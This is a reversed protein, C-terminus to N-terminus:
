SQDQNVNRLASVLKVCEVAEKVDHVRLISAGNLLAVTNLVTTGNLANEPTTHLVKNIMAKRSVGALIPLNFLEFNKLRNLLEYNHAVTKGFGFGADLIIDHVAFAKLQSLKENFYNMVEMVVDDYLPNIQMTQSTGQIHMLVYPVQYAAIVKYMEDNGGSVDNIINAGADIAQKAVESNCTDASIVVDKFQNRVLKIAPLLRSLEEDTTPQISGPRSSAGGIDIIGVGASLMNEVQKEIHNAEIYKGGDFFSDPTVNLIGM